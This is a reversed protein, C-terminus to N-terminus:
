SENLLKKYDEIQAECIIKRRLAISEQNKMVDLITNLQRIVGHKDNVIKEATWRLNELGNLSSKTVDEDPVELSNSSDIIKKHNNLFNKQQILVYNFKVLVELEENLKSIQSELDRNKFELLEKNSRLAEIEESKEVKELLLQDWHIKKSFNVLRLQLENFKLSYDNCAKQM